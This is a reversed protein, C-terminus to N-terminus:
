RGKAELVDEIKRILEAVTFPKQIFGGCGRSLIQRARDDFSYGSSLLVKVGPNAEKLKDFVEGGGMGPMIMDLIVVDIHDRNTRYLEIAEKGNAAALVEYGLATLMKTFIDVISKEDDVLLVTGKRGRAGEHHMTWGEARSDSAEDAANGEVAPLYIAFTTGKGVRSDVQIMGGHNEIIGYASALGLGTGRGLEKTTFFPEFIRELTKSDMGVGNDRITVKVYKGPKAKFNGIEGEGMEVNRTELVMEGGAPMAQWANLYLNMLVQEMQARDVEVTWIREEYQWRIQIEKRTRAFMESTKKVLRNMDTQRLEYKGGRAFGLLKRSLSAGSMVSDVIGEVMPRHLHDEDMDMLMLSAYGQISMLLNNFDHAIGGALTGISEMRQARRFQAELKKEKTIDRLFNLTAPKGEWTIPVAHLETWLEEGNASVLRFSYTNPVNKGKIRGLHREMVMQRDEPHVYNIFPVGELEFGLADGMERAKRNPFKIELDQAIFIGDSANEVLLRYKEESERLAEEALKRETIDLIMGSIEDNERVASLLVTKTGGERTLLETEFDSVSGSEMLKSILLDRDGRNKYRVLVSEAKMEEPSDFELLKSLADNVYLIEGKLTTKYIGVLSNDVLERYKKESEKLTEESRKRETIDMGLSQYERIRGEEDTLARDTWEQWRITGDPALVQHEYTAMPKQENLATFHARVKEREEEPIFRFFDQGILEEKKKGFYSCYRENVLTLTGDPLFRCVLAPMDEVLRRLSERSERLAEEAKKRDTVDRAVGLVAHPVGNRYILSGHTEVWVHGGDKRRLRYETFGRQSGNRGIEELAEYVTPLQDEGILSAFRLDPIEERSYGLLRLSAENAELFRGEFDHVYACHLNRHFLSDFKEESERCRDARRRLEDREKELELIRRRLEQDTSNRAM